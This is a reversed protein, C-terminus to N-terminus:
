KYNELIDIGEQYKVTNANIEIVNHCTINFSESNKEKLGQMFKIFFKNDFSKNVLRNIEKGFNTLVYVGVSLKPNNLGASDKKYKLISILNNYLINAGDHYNKTAGELSVIGCDQLCLLDIYTVNFNGLLEENRVIYENGIIYPVIREFLKAENTTMTKLKSLTRLSFSQPQKIEGALLKAWMQQMDQDSIEGAGNIFQTLFDNNIPEESATDDGNKKNEELVMQTKELVNEINVQKLIEQAKLRNSTRELLRQMQPNIIGLGDKNYVIPINANEIIDITERLSTKEIEKLERNYKLDSRNKIIGMFKDIASTGHEVTKALPQIINDEM